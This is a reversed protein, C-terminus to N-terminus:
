PNKSPELIFPYWKGWILGKCTMQAKNNLGHVEKIAEIAYNDSFAPALNKVDDVGLLQAVRIIKEDKWIAPISDENGECPPNGITGIIIENDNMAYGKFNPILKVGTERDWLYTENYTNLLVTGKHNVIMKELPFKINKPLSILHIDGDWFFAQYGTLVYKKQKENFKGHGIYGILEGKNNLGMLRISMVHFGLSEFQYAFETDPEIKTIVGNDWIFSKDLYYEGNWTSTFGIVQSLDNLKLNNNVDFGKIDLFHFGLAKSWIFIKWEGIKNFYGYGVLQGVNNAVLSCIASQGFFIFGNKQDFTFIEDSKRQHNESKWIKGFMKSNDTIGDINWDIDYQDIILEAGTSTLKYEESYLSLATFFAFYVLIKKM